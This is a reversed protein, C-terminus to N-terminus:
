YVFNCMGQPLPSSLVSRTRFEVTGGGLHHASKLQHLYAQGALRVGEPLAPVNHHLLRQRAGRKSPPDLKYKGAIM